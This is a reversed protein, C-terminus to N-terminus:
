GATQATVVLRPEVQLLVRTHVEAQEERLVEQHVAEPTEAIDQVAVVEVQRHQEEPLHVEMSVMRAQGPQLDVEEQM